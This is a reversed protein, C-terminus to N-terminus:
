KNCVSVKLIEIINHSVWGAWALGISVLIGWVLRADGNPFVIRTRRRDENM